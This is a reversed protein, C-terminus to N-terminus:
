FLRLLSLELQVGLDVFHLNFVLLQHFLQGLFYLLHLMMVFVFIVQYGAGIKVLLFGPLLLLFM